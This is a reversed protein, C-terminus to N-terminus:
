DLNFHCFIKAKRHFEEKTLESNDLQNKLLKLNRMVDVDFYFDLDDKKTEKGFVHRKIRQFQENSILECDRILKLNGWEEKTIEKWMEKDGNESDEGLLRAWEERTAGSSMADELEKDKLDHLFDWESM